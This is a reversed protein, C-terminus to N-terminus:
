VKTFANHLKLGNRPHQYCPLKENEELKEFIVDHVQQGHILEPPLPFSRYGQVPMM